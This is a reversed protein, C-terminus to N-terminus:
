GGLAKVLLAGLPSIFASNIAPLAATFMPEVFPKPAIGRRKAKRSIAFAMSRAAREDSVGIKRKVWLTLPEIPIGKGPKRGKELVIAYEARPGVRSEQEADDYGWDWSDRLYNTAGVETALRGESVLFESALSLQKKTIQRIDSERRGNTLALGQTVLNAVIFAM